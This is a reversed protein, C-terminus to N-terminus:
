PDLLQTSTRVYGSRAIFAVISARLGETTELKNHSHEAIIQRADFNRAQPRM